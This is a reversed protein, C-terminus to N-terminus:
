LRSKQYIGRRPQAANRRRRYQQCDYYEKIQEQRQKKFRAQKDSNKLRDLFDLGHNLMKIQSKPIFPITHDWENENAKQEDSLDDWAVFNQPDAEPTNYWALMDYYLCMFGSVSVDEQYDSKSVTKRSPCNELEKLAYVSIRQCGMEKVNLNMRTTVNYMVKCNTTSSNYIQAVGKIYWKVSGDPVSADNSQGNHTDNSGMEARYKIM